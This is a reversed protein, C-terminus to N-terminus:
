YVWQTTLDHLYEIEGIRERDPVSCERNIVTLGLSVTSLSYQYNCFLM